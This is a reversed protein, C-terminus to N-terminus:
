EVGRAAPGQLGEVEPPDARVAARVERSHEGVAPEHLPLLLHEGLQQEEQADAGLAPAGADGDHIGGRQRGAVGLARPLVAGHPAQRRVAPTSHAPHVPELQVENDVRHPLNDLSHEGWGVGVVPDRQSTLGEGLLEEAPQDAILPVDRPSEGLPKQRLSDPQDGPNFSVHLVPHHLDLVLEQQALAGHHLGDDPHQLAAALNLM